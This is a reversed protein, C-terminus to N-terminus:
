EGQTNPHELDPSFWAHSAAPPDPQLHEGWSLHVLPGIAPTDLYAMGLRPIEDLGTFFGAAVNQFGQLFEATNLQGPASAQLPVLINIEAVQSGDPLEGYPLRDHGSIFLSGPFGDDPGSPDGGPRFTMANGGYEFTLPREGGHPLRFAGLYVLDEPQVLETANVPPVPSPSIVGPGNSTSAPDSQAQPVTSPVAGGAGPLNCASLGALLLGITLFSSIVLKM